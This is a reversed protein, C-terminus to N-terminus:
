RSRLTESVRLAKCCIDHFAPLYYFNKLGSITLM